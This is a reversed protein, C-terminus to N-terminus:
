DRSEGVPTHTPLEEEVVERLEEQVVGLDRDESPSRPELEHRQPRRLPRGLRFEEREVTAVQRRTEPPEQEEGSRGRPALGGKLEVKPGEVEPERLQLPEVVPEAKQVCGTVKEEEPHIRRGPGTGSWRTPTGPQAGVGDM